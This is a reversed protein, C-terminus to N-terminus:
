WLRRLTDSAEDVSFVVRRPVKARAGGDGNDDDDDDNDARRRSSQQARYGGRAARESGGGDSERIVGSEAVATASWSRDIIYSARSYRGRAFLRCPVVSAVPGVICSVLMNNNNNFCVRTCSTCIMVVVSSPRYFVFTSSFFRGCTSKSVPDIDVRPIAPSNISKGASSRVTTRYLCIGVRDQNRGAARCHDAVM